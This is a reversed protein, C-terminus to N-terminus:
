NTFGLLNQPSTTYYRELSHTQWEQLLLDLFEYCRRFSLALFLSSQTELSTVCTQQIIISLMVTKLCNRWRVKQCGCVQVHLEWHHSSDATPRSHAVFAFFVSDFCVSLASDLLVSEMKAAEIVRIIIHIAATGSSAMVKACNPILNFLM